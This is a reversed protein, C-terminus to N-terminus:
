RQILSVLAAALGLGGVLVGAAAFGRDRDSMQQADKLMSSFAEGSLFDQAQYKGGGGGGGAAAATEVSESDEGDDSAGGLENDTLAEISNSSSSGGSDERGSSPHNVSCEPGDSAAVAGSLRSVEEHTRRLLDLASGENRLEETLRLVVEDNMRARKYPEIVLVSAMLLLTNVGVLGASVYTSLARMKDSWLQEEHYRLLRPTVPFPPPPTVVLTM